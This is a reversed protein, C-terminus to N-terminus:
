RRSAPATQKRTRLYSILGAIRKRTRIALSRLAAFEAETIYRLDLAVFLHSEVESASARAIALFRAFDTDTSAEFGEAINAMVSVAARQLQVRLARDRVGSAGYVARTLERASQWAELEEFHRVTAV